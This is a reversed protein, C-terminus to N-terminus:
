RRVDLRGRKRWLGSGQCSGRRIIRMGLFRREDLRRMEARLSEADAGAGEHGAAREAGEGGGSSTGGAEEGSAGAYGGCVGEEDEGPQLPQGSADAGYSM